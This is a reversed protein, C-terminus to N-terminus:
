TIAYAQTHICDHASTTKSDTQQCDRHLPCIIRTLSLHNKLSASQVRTSRGPWHFDYGFKMRGREKQEGKQRETMKESEREKGKPKGRARESRAEEGKKAYKAEGSNIGDEKRGRVAHLHM